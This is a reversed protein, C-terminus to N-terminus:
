RGGKIREINIVPLRMVEQTGADGWRFAIQLLLNSFEHSFIRTRVFCEIKLHIVTSRDITDASLNGDVRLTLAMEFHLTIIKVIAM